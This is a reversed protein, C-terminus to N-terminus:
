NHYRIRDLRRAEFFDIGLELSQGEEIFTDLEITQDIILKLRHEHYVVNVNNIDGGSYDIMSLDAIKKDPLWNRSKYVTIHRHNDTTAFGTYEHIFYYDGSM